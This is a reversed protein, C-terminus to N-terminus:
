RKGKALSRYYEEVLERFRPPVQDGAGALPKAADGEVRRRLAFEFAKLRELVDEQLRNLGTPDALVKSSELRKIEAIVRDLEAPDLQMRELEGRLAEADARRERLERQWQRGDGGPTVYGPRGGASNEGQMPAGGTTDQVGRGGSQGDSRRDTQGGAQGPAQGGQQQGGQPQGRQEQGGARSGAQGGQQAEMRERLSELGQVLDRARDLARGAGSSDAQSYSRGAGSIRAAASDLNNAISESLSKAYDPPAQGRLLGKSFRIKDQVRDERIGRASEELRRGADPRTGRTERGLNALDRELRGVDAAMSDKREMLRRATEAEPQGGGSKLARDVDQGIERERQALEQARQAADRLQREIGASQSRELARTADRLRDAAARAEGEGGSQSAASRRMSNAAEQLRRAAEAVEPNNQERTLRELRRALEEAEQALQRQAAGSQAQTSEQGGARGGAQGAENGAQGGARRGAEQRQQRQALQKLRELTEDLERQRQREEGREMTEYQNQLKDTELEFLDALDEAESNSQGAGGGQQQGQTVQVERFAEEARQLHTLARQEPGLADDAKRQGLQQEAATMEPIADTLEKQIVVFTSDTRAANRKVMQQVLENVREKLRGQTLALIALDERVQQEGTQAKDRQVKYTGAIIERQRASLGEPSDGQGAGPMGAQEAARYDKGFPRIRLFYIDSASTRGAGAGNDTARAFYAIADGPKLGLEELFFTHGATVEPMRKTGGGYLSVTKEEGGNVRYVMELSKIGYDDTARAETFVEEVATAQADRGPRTFVVTPGVDDLLDIRYRLSAEVFEGSPAQLEIRYWGSQNARLNGELQGESGAKLPITDGTETIVRGLPSPRTPTVIFRVGTGRPVAIDGGPDQREVGLGTFSPFRLELALREVAPLDAITISFQGSRVGNAEVVYEAKVTLDFLRFTWAGSSDGSIMPLRRWEPSDGERMLLEVRDTAFGRLRASIELDGGKPVSIDGPEVLVAYPTAAVADQWPILAKGAQRLANPGVLFGLLGLAALGATIAGANRLRVAEIRRGEDAERIRAVANRVVAEALSTSAPDSSEAQEVASVLLAELGPEHEEIYRAVQGDTVRRLLPVIVYRILAFAALFWAIVRFATVAGASFHLSHLVWAGMVLWLLGLGLVLALGQLAVRLRWRARVRHVLELLENRTM